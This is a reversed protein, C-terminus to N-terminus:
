SLFATAGSAGAEEGDTDGAPTDGAFRHQPHGARTGGGSVEPVGLAVGNTPLPRILM